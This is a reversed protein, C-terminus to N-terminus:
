IMALRTPYLLGVQTVAGPGPAHPTRLRHPQHGNAM